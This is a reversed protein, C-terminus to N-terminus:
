GDWDSREPGATAQGTDNIPRAPAQADSSTGRAPEAKGVGAAGALHGRIADYEEATVIGMDRHQRLQDLDLGGCFGGAKQMRGAWLRVMAVLGFLAMVGLIGFAALAFLQDPTFNLETEPTAM